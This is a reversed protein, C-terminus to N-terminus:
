KKGFLFEVLDRVEFPTLEKAIDSPMSSLGKQRNDIDATKITITKANADVLTVESATEKKIIGSFTQGENTEISVTEFGQAVSRNPHVIAELLYLRAKDKGIHSLNPGVEGGRDDIKHCRVCSVSVKEFFITEGREADGGLMAERWPKLEADDYPQKSYDHLREILTKRPDTGKSSTTREKVASLVDLRLEPKLKDQNMKQMLEVLAQDGDASQLGRLLEIANQQEETDRGDNAIKSLFGAAEKPKSKTFLKAAAIRVAPASDNQYQDLLKPVEKKAVEGLASLAAARAPAPRNTDGLMALLQPQIDAIGLKGAAEAAKQRVKDPGSFIAGIHATIATKAPDASREELPRWEGTVRDTPKPKAWNLLMDLAEIRLKEPADDRGAYVALAEANEPKGVRFNANLIRRFLADYQDKSGTYPKTIWPALLEMNSQIQAVDNYQEEHLRRALELRIGPDADNGFTEQWVKNEGLHFRLRALRIRADPHRDLEKDYDASGSRGLFVSVAPRATPSDLLQPNALLKEVVLKRLDVSQVPWFSELGRRLVVADNSSLIRTIGSLLKGELKMTALTFFEDLYTGALSAANQDATNMLDILAENVAPIIKQSEKYEPSDQSISKEKILKHSMPYFENARITRLAGIAHVYAVPSKSSKAVQVLESIAKKTTLAFQAEMRVRRDVHELLKCLEKVDRKDFGEKLLTQVEKVRPDSKLTENTVRYIRGKGLGDWGDVWDSVYFAGDPGFDCDTVLLKQLFPEYKTMKFSAGDPEMTFRQVASNAPGGRFDCVFFSGNYSEPLGTGPYAVLGSPGDTIHAIPPIVSQSLNDKALGWLKERNWPGRDPLYQYYMRWGYDGGEVLHYLRAKDGSDSNNDVTFLNGYDDFALEQPNRVGTCFIETNSGDLESRLVVGTDPAYLHKGEKNTVNLGRDGISWYLRGDPGIVLGHMDHGRFAFKVGYGTSLKEREDAIGDNNTDRLKWLDPICTYYVNGKHALVGAGTGTLIDRFGDAYVTDHDAVGDGDRDELLRLRDQEVAYSAGQDPRHKKIYALRDEVKTAALDDDLWEKHGRNDEVGKNSKQRFTECAYIRGQADFCFSVPNAILPEAAYLSVKFGEPVKIRAIANEGEKSAGAIPPIYKGDVYKGTTSPTIKGPEPHAEPKNSKEPEAALLVATFCSCLAVFYASFGFSRLM